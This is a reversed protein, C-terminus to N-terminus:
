VETVRAVKQFLVVGLGILCVACGILTHWFLAEGRVFHAAVISVVPELLVFPVVLGVPNRQLLKFWMSYCYLTSVIVTYALAIYGEYNASLAAVLAQPDHWYAWVALFPAAILGIAANLAFPHIAGFKRIQISSYGWLIAAFVILLVGWLEAKASPMGVTIVVGVFAIVTGIAIRLKFREGLFVIALLSAIPVQLQVIVSSEGAPVEHMGIFLIGFYAGMVGAIYFLPVWQDRRILRLWPSLILAVLAFRIAMLALPDIHMVGVKVAVFNFGWLIVVSLAIFIDLLSM